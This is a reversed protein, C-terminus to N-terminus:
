RVMRKTRCIELINVPSRLDLAASVYNSDSLQHHQARKSQQHQRCNLLLTVTDAAPGLWTMVSKAHAYIHRMQKVQEIKDVEGDQDICLADIWLVLSEVGPM